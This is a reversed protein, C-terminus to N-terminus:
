VAEKVAVFKNNILSWEPNWKLLDIVDRMCFNPLLPYLVTYIKTVLELDEIEDVTWRMQSLNEKNGYNGIKYRDPHLRIFSTVHERDFSKAERWAEELASFRFIEVDLGDPFTLEMTNATYDYDGEFHLSIVSDMIEPDMLPCDGTLRVIHRAQWLRAVQFFRDLVDELSGGYCSINLGSCLCRIPKDEPLSSTAVVLKDIKKSQLVREIQHVLMPKGLIPMIVKGPLRVSSMRAQLIVLVDTM